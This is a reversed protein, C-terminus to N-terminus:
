HDCVESAKTQYCVKFFFNSRTITLLLTSIPLVAHLIRQSNRHFCSIRLFLGAKIPIVGTPSSSDEDPGCSSDKKDDVRESVGEEVREEKPEPDGEPKENVLSDLSM